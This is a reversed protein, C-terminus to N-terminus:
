SGVVRLSPPRRAKLRQVVTPPVDVNDEKCRQLVWELGESFSDVFTVPIPEKQFWSIATLIGRILQSTVVMAMCVGVKRTLDRVRARWEGIMRRQRPAIPGANSFDLIVAARLGNALQSEMARTVETTMGTLEDDTLEGCVEVVVIPENELSLHYAM